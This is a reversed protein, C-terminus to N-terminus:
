QDNGLDSLVNGAEYACKTSRDYFFGNDDNDIIYLIDYYIDPYTPSIFKLHYSQAGSAPMSVPESTTMINVIENITATDDITLVHMIVDGVICVYISDAGFEAITPLTIDSSYYLAGIGDYSESLWQKPDSEGVTHLRVEGGNKTKYYAYEDGLKKPEYSVPACLYTIDNKEDVYGDGEPTLKVLGSCAAFSLLVAALLLSLLTKKMNTYVTFLFLENWLISCLLM